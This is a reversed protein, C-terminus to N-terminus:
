DTWYPICQEGLSKPRELMGAKWNCCKWSLESPAFAAFIANYPRESGKILSIGQLTKSKVCREREEAITVFVSEAKRTTALLPVAKSKSHAREGDSSDYPSGERHHILSCGFSVPSRLHWIVQKSGKQTLPSRKESM